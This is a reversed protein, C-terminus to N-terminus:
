RHHILGLRRTLVPQHDQEGGCPAAVAGGEEALAQSLRLQGVGQLGVEGGHAQLDEVIAAHGAGAGLVQGDLGEGLAFVGLEGGGQKKVVTVAAADQPHHTVLGRPLEPLGQVVQAGAVVPVLAQGAVEAGFGLGGGAACQPIIWQELGWEVGQVAAREGGLLRQQHQEFAGAAGAALGEM